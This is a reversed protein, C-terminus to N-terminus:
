LDVPEPITADELYNNYREAYEFYDHPAKFQHM